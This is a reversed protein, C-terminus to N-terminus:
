VAECVPANALRRLTEGHCSRPFCFCLLDRSRLEPLRALLHPQTAIWADYQAIVDGRTGDRGIVFPNGWLSGRGIYVAGAPTGHTHKNLIRPLTAAREADREEVFTELLHLYRSDHINAKDQSYGGDEFWENFDDMDIAKSAIFDAVIQHATQM